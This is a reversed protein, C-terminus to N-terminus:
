PSNGRSRHIRVRTNSGARETHEQIAGTVVRQVRPNLADFGPGEFFVNLEPGVPESRATLQGGRDSIGGVPMGGVGGGPGSFGGTAGALAGWAAAIGVFQGAAAFHGAAKAATLPNLSAVLGLAAQEAAMVANQRAKGAALQGIGASMAANVIEGASQSVTAMILQEKAVRKAEEQMEQLRETLGVMREDLPGVGAAALEQMATSLLSVGVAAANYDSGLAAAMTANTRLGEELKKMADAVPDDVKGEEAIRKLEDQLTKAAEIIGRQYTEQTIRKAELHGILRRVEDDYVEQPTRLSETIKAAEEEAKKRAEKAADSEMVGGGGGGKNSKDLAAIAAVPAPTEVPKRELEENIDIIAQKVAALNAEAKSTDFGLLGKVAIWAELAAEQIEYWGRTSKVVSDEWGKVMADIAWVLASVVATVADVAPALRSKLANTLTKLEDLSTRSREETDALVGDANRLSAVLGDIEFAGARIDVAMKAGAREGFAEAAISGAALDTPAEKIRRMFEAFAAPGDKFGERALNVFVRNLGAAAETTKIGRREFEAFLGIQENISFGLQALVPGTELLRQALEVVSAGTAQGALTLRDMIPIAADASLGYRNLLQGVTLTAASVDVQNARAFDLASKTIARLPEDTVGLLTNLNGVATAVDTIAEPVQAYVARVDRSLTTLLEGSAGTLRILTRRAEQVGSIFQGIARVSFAALLYAGFKKAQEGLKQMDKEIPSLTKKAGDQTQKAANQDLVLQVLRRIPGAM